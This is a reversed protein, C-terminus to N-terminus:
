GPNARPRLPLEVLPRTGATTATSVSPGGNESHPHWCAAKHDVGSLAPENETCISTARPCRPHFPCGTPRAALTPPEGPLQVRTRQVAPDRSPVAQLLARTYPHRPSKLVENTPGIEVIEGLYMIAVRDCISRLLSLDHSVLLIAVDLRHTLDGLLEVIGGATSEDLMSVPEDALLVAPELVLARAIAVRQREGGSLEYPLRDLYAAPDLRASSLAAVVKSEIEHHGNLGLHSRNALLPEAVARRVNHRPNLSDYPDQFIMQVQRRFATWDIEDVHVPRQGNVSITGSSTKNLGLLAEILSSKGCGSEGALGLVEGQDISLSLDHLAKLDSTQRLAALGRGSKHFVDLHEIALACKRHPAHTETPGTLHLVPQPKDGIVQAPTGTSTTRGEELVIMEDCLEAAVGLDHTVVLLSLGFEQKAQVLLELIRDQVIVDLGTTPEDAILVTPNLVTAMAILARQRMGGSFQHPFANARNPHIGVRELAERSMALASARDVRRHARIVEAIQKDVRLVPDLSNMAAQPVLALKEWRLARLNREPLDLLNLGEFMVSGRVSANRPLLGLIAKSATTKGSGSTGILGVTQGAGLSLNLGTLRRVFGDDTPFSVSLDRVELIPGGSAEAGSM